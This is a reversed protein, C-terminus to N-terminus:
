GSVDRRMIVRPFGGSVPDTKCTLAFGAAEARDMEGDEARGSTLPGVGLRRGVARSQAARTRRDGRLHECAEVRPVPSRVPYSTPAPRRVGDRTAPRTSAPLDPM